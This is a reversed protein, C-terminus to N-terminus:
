MMALMTERRWNRLWRKLAMQWKYWVTRMYAGVKNTTTNAWILQHKSTCLIRIRKPLPNRHHCKSSYPIWLMKNNRSCIVGTYNCLQIKSIPVFKCFIRGICRRCIINVGNKIGSRNKFRRLWKGMIRIIRIRWSWCCHGLLSNKIQM